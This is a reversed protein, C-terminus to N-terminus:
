KKEGIDYHERLKDLLKGVESRLNTVIQERQAEEIDPAALMELFDRVFYLPQFIEEITKKDQGQPNGALIGSLGMFKDLVYLGGSGCGIERVDSVYDGGRQKLISVAKHVASELEVTALYVIGDFMAAYRVNTLPASGTFEDLKQVFLSTAQRRQLLSLFSAIFDQYTGPDEISRELENIGDVAV